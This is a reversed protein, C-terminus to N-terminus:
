RVQISADIEGQPKEHYSVVRKCGNRQEFTWDDLNTGSKWDVVSEPCIQIHQQKMRDPWIWFDRDAIKKTIAVDTYTQLNGSLQHDRVGYGLSVGITLVILMVTSIWVTRKGQPQAEPIHIAIPTIAPEFMFPLLEKKTSKKGSDYIVYVCTSILLLLPLWYIGYALLSKM